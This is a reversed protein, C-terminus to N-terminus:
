CGATWRLFFQEVDSGDIGGDQNLDSICPANAPVKMGAVNIGAPTGTKFLGITATGDVPPM